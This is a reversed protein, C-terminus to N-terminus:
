HVIQLDSNTKSLKHGKDLGRFTNRLSFLSKRGEGATKITQVANISFHQLAQTGKLM